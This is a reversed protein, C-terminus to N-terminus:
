GDGEGVRRCRGRTASPSDMPARARAVNIQALHYVTSMGARPYALETARTFGAPTLGINM